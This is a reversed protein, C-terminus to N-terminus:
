FRHAGKTANPAFRYTGTKDFVCLHRVHRGTPLRQLAGHTMRSLHLADSVINLLARAPKWHGRM